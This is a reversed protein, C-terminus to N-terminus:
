SVPGSVVALALQRSSEAMYSPRHVTRWSMRVAFRTRTVALVTDAVPPALVTLPSSQLQYRGLFPFAGTGSDANTAAAAFASGAVLGLRVAPERRERGRPDALAANNGSGNAVVAFLSDPIRCYSAM